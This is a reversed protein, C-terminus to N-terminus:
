ITLYCLSFVVFEFVSGLCILSGCFVNFFNARKSHWLLWGYVAGLLIAIDLIIFQTLTLDM